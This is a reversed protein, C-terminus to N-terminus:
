SSARGQEAAELLLAAWDGSARRDGERLGCAAFAEVVSDVESALMGACVLHEPPVEIRAAVDRLV